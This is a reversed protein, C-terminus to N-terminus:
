FSSDVITYVLFPILFILFKFMRDTKIICMNFYIAVLKYYLPTYTVMSTTWIAAMIRIYLKFITLWIHYVIICV